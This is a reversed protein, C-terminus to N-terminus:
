ERKDVIKESDINSKKEKSMLILNLILGLVMALSVGAFSESFLWIGSAGVTLIVSVILLNKNNELDVKNNIITKLGSAAIYGYLIMSCGGFVASPVLQLLIQFPAIFALLGMILAAITTMWVSAVRSFGITAISEGYSTNPLGCVFTGIASALGDGLLTRHLGPRETLDVGVINSLVRHDSYHELLACISVPIFLVLISAFTTWNFDAANEAWHMFAFDPLAFFQPNALWNNLNALAGADFLNLQASMNTANGIFYLIMAILSGAILGFLFPITKAFGKMYHSSLAVILMTVIGILVGAMTAPGGLGVYTPIFGALNIGIVITVAGVLVPPFVKNLAQIGKLKILLAFLAYVIFIVVGGVAVALYNGGTSSLALAGVVASVTAGSNSIFMPSKFGTVLQYVITGVCGGILGTAIPTGCITSILVTAVFVALLMQIPYIIWEYWKKPKDGINYIMNSM